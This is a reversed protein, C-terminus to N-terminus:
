CGGAVACDLPDATPDVGCMTPAPIAGGTFLADLISIGDALDIVGDDNADCGDLCALTPAPPVFLADFLHIADAIDFVADLNCDGRRFGPLVTLSGNELVPIISASFQVLVASVSPVGLDNSLELPSTLGVTGPLVEYTVDIAEFEGAPLNSGSHSLGYVMGVTIGGDVFDIQFFAPVGGILTQVFEDAIAIEIPTVISPDSALGFSFGQHLDSSELTVTAVFSTGPAAQYADVRFADIFPQADCPSAIAGLLLTAALLTSRPM